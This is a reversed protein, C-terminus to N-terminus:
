LDNINLNYDSGYYDDCVSQCVDSDLLVREDDEYMFWKRRLAAKSFRLKKQTSHSMEMGRVFGVYNSLQWNIAHLM